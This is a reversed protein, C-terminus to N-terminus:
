TIKSVSARRHASNRLILRSIPVSGQDLGHVGPLGTCSAAAILLDSCRAATDTRRSNPRSPVPVPAFFEVRLRNHGVAFADICQTIRSQLRLSHASNQTDLKGTARQRWVIYIM